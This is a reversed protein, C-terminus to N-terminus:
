SIGLEEKLSTLDGDIFLDLLTSLKISILTMLQQRELFTGGVISVKVTFVSMTWSYNHKIKIGIQLNDNKNVRSLISYVVSKFMYASHVYYSKADNSIDCHFKEVTIGEFRKKLYKFM